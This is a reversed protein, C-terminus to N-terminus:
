VHLCMHISNKLYLSIQQIRPQSNGVLISPALLIKSRLLVPMEFIEQPYSGLIFMLDRVDYADHVGLSATSNSQTQM